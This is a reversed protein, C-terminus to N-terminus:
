KAQFRYMNISSLGKQSHNKQFTQLFEHKNNERSVLVCLPVGHWLIEKKLIKESEKSKEFVNDFHGGHGNMSLPRIKM